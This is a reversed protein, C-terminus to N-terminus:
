PCPAGAVVQALADIDDQDVNGDGNFDPDVCLCSLDGAVAQSLCNIDDQDVNGDCNVDPDCPTGPLVQLRWPEDDFGASNTARITITFVGEVPAPWTVVGTAPNITMGAPGGVLTWATIPNMCGPDTLTPAPGVYPAPLTHSANPIDVVVPAIRNMTVTWSRDGTGASNAARITVPHTGVIPSPWSVVGTASNITMGAPGTVLSWSTIPNMCGPNTLTPTPGTYPGCALTANSIAGIVPAIRNVNLTWSRDGSGTANTARITITHSGVVPAPWSLVGTGANITMGAPGSVLSWASIPNMCVPNTLTPTPGTYPECSMFENAIPNIVPTAPNVTLSWSRTSNGVSNTARINITHTGIVPTPWSVVGTGSNITMGSPGTVLSWTVPNSCAPNTLAPTPGTYPSGCTSADNPIFSITPLLRNITLSWSEDDSGASNTARVTIPFTGVFPAPWSVLGTSPNITMGTPGTVLSWTVPGMCVNSLISATFTYPSGCNVFADAITNVIPAELSQTFFARLRFFGNGFGTAGFHSVRIRVVQDRTLSVSVRSDRAAGSQTCGPITADDNCALQNATTGVCASHVSLVTDVGTDTVGDWDHSGCTDVVLTGNCPATFVYWVDPNSNSTGCSASGSPTANYLTGLIISGDAISEGSACSSSPASPPLTANVNLVINGRTTGFSAVRIFYTTNQIANFTVSSANANAPCAAAGMDDNCTILNVVSGPCGSYVSLITDFDSGCTDLTIPGNAPATILWWVDGTGAGQSGCATHGADTAAGVNSGTWAGNRTIRTANTCMDNAPVGSRPDLCSVSDEYANIETVSNPNSSNAFTNMCTNAPHMTSGPCTCHGANWNHGLEHSTLNTACAFTPSYDSQSLGYASPLNCVVGVVAIGIPGDSITRGTFLHATDRAVGAHNANWHAQMQGLLVDSQTSSYPDSAANVRILITGVAHTIQVDRQYQHNVVNTIAAIRDRVNVSNSGRAQYYPFDADFAVLAECYTGGCPARPVYGGQHHAPHDDDTVGCMGGCSSDAGAYVVHMDQPAGPLFESLPQVWVTSGDPMFVTIFLGEALISLAVRADPLGQVSGSYTVEPAPDLVTYETLSTYQRVEHTEHLISIPQVVLTLDKHHETPITLQLPERTNAPVDLWAIIGGSLDAVPLDRLPIPPQASVQAAAGAGGIMSACACVARILRSAWGTMAM